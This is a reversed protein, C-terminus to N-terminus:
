GNEAPKKVAAALGEPREDPGGTRRARSQAKRRQLNARLEDALRAQRRSQQPKEPASEKSSMDTAKNMLVKRTLFFSGCQPGTM